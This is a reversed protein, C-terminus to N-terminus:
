WARKRSLRSAFSMKLDRRSPRLAPSLVPETGMSGRSWLINKRNRHKHGETCHQRSSSNGSISVSGRKKKCILRLNRLGRYHLCRRGLRSIGVGGRAGSWLKSLEWCGWRNNAVRLVPHRRRILRLHLLVTRMLCRRSGLRHGVICTMGGKRRRGLIRWLEVRMIPLIHEELQAKPFVVLRLRIHQRHGRPIRPVGGLAWRCSIAQVRMVVMVLRMRRLHVLRGLHRVVRHMRRVWRDLLNRHMGSVVM